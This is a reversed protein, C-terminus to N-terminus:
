GIIGAILLILVFQLVEQVLAGRIILAICAATISIAVATVVRPLVARVLAMTQLLSIEHYVEM